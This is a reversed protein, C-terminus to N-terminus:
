RALRFFQSDAEGLPVTAIVFGAPGDEITVGEVMSWTADSGLSTTTEVSIADTSTGNPAITLALSGDMLAVAAIEPPNAPSELRVVQINDFLAFNLDSGISGFQDNQGFMPKGSQGGITNYIMLGNITLILEEGIQKMEVEVWRGSPVNAAVYPPNPFYSGFVSSDYTTISPALDPGMTEYLAFDRINSGDGNITFWTGDGGTIGHRLVTEGSHNLGMLTHETTGGQGLDVSIFMDFRVAYSGSLDWDNPFVNVGAPSGEADFKNVQLRLGTTSGDLSNPAPPISVMSYDYSFDAEYDDVGNNSDFLVTWQDAVDASFDESFLLEGEVTEDDRIIVDASLNERLRYGTGEVITATVTKEGDLEDNDIPLIDVTATTEGEFIVVSGAIESYDTGEVASGAVTFDITTESAAPSSLTITFQGFDADDPEYAGPRTAAISAFPLDGDDTLNVMASVNERVEYDVSSAIFLVITEDVEGIEDDLASVEFTASSEGAPITIEMSPVEYDVGGTASGGTMLQVTLAEDTSGSRTVTFEATGDPEAITAPVFVEAGIIPDFELTGPGEIGVIPKSPGEIRTVRLNDYIVFNEAGPNAISSFPDSYGLFVKGTDKLIRGPQIEAIIHGNMLWTVVGDVKRIEVRVWSKGPSGATQFEPAPFVYELPSGPINNYDGFFDGDRDIFGVAETAEDLFLPDSFGDGTYARMDRSAGGEGTTGFFIGDGELADNSVLFAPNEGSGAIGFVAVETSGSGGFAGGNYSLFMEFQMSYNGDLDEMMSPFATVSSTAAEEDFNVAMKLGLTTGDTSFPNAPVNVLQQEGDVTASYQDQSYDHGFIAEFDPVGNGSAELITWNESSDTDFNDSLIEQGRAERSQATLGLSVVCLLILKRTKLLNMQM